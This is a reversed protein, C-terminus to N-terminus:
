SWTQLVARPPLPLPARAVPLGVQIRSATSMRNRNVTARVRESQRTRAIARTRGTHPRLQSGSPVTEALLLSVEEESGLGADQPFRSGLSSRPQWARRAPPGPVVVRWRGGGGVGLLGSGRSLQARGQPASGTATAAATPTACEPCFWEDVPVEQLPPELCEM